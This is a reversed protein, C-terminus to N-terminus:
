IEVPVIKKWDTWAGSSNTTRVFFIRESIAFAIQLADRGPNKGSYLCIVRCYNAPAHTCNDGCYHIGATLTNYDVNPTSPKVFINELNM